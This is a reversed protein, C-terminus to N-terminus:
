APVDLFAAMAIQLLSFMEMHFCHPIRSKSQRDVGKFLSIFQIYLLGCFFPFIAGVCVCGMGNYYYYM